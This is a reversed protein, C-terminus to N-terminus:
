NNQNQHIGTLFCFRHLQKRFKFFYAQQAPSQRDSSNLGLDMTLHNAPKLTDLGPQIKGFARQAKSRFATSAQRYPGKEESVRM